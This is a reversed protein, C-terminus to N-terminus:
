VMPVCYLLAKCKSACGTLLFDHVRTIKNGPDIAVLQRKYLMLFLVHLVCHVFLDSFHRSIKGSAHVQRNIGM